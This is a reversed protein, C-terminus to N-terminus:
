DLILYLGSPLEKAAQSQNKEHKMASKEKNRFSASNPLLHKQIALDLEEISVRKTTLGKSHSKKNPSQHHLQFSQNSAGKSVSLRNFNKSQLTPLYIFFSGTALTETASDVEEVEEPM